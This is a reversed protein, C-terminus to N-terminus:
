TSHASIVEDISNCLCIHNRYLYDFLPKWSSPTPMYPPRETLRMASFDGLLKDPTCFLAAAVSAKFLLNPKNPSVSSQLSSILDSLPNGLFESLTIIRVNPLYSYQHQQGIFIHNFGMFLLEAGISSGQSFTVKSKTAILYSNATSDYSHWQINPLYSYSRAYFDWCHRSSRSKTLTNPHVRVTARLGGLTENVIRALIAGQDIPNDYWSAYEDDSSTYYTLDNNYENTSDPQKIIGSKSTIYAECCRVLLEHPMTNLLKPFERQGYSDLDHVSHFLRIPQYNLQNCEYWVIQSESFARVLISELPLRGNFIHVTKPKYYASLDNAYSHLCSLKPYIQHTLWNIRNSCPSPNSEAVVLFGKVAKWVASYPLSPQHPSSKYNFTEISAVKQLEKLKRRVRPSLYSNNKVRSLYEYLSSYYFDTRFPSNAIIDIVKVQINNAVLKQIDQVFHELHPYQYTSIFFLATM